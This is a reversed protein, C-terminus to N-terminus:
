CPEAAHGHRPGNMIDAIVALLTEIDLPKAVFPVEAPPSIRIAASLVVIPLGPWESRLRAVLGLGDLGPMYLDTLVLDPADHAVTELAALGDPASRVTYGEDELLETVLDRLAPEDDVVLITPPM